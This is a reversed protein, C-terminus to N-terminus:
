PHRKGGDHHERAWQAAFFGLVALPVVRRWGIDRGIQTAVAILRPDLLWPPLQPAAARAQAAHRRVRRRIVLCLLAAVIAIGATVAAMILGASVSDYRLALWDYGAICLFIFATLLALTAVAACVIVAPSLGQRAQVTLTIEQLLFKLM